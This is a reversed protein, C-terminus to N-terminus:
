TLMELNTKEGGAKPHPQAEAKSIGSSPRRRPLPHRKREKKEGKPHRGEEKEPPQVLVISEEKDTSGVHDKRGGARNQQKMGKEEEAIEGIV